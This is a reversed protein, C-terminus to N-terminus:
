VVIKNVRKAVSEDFRVKAFRRPGICDNYFDDSTSVHFKHHINEELYNVQGKTEGLILITFEFAALGLSTIDVQLSKSSGTYTAWDSEKRTVKRRTKGKVKVRRTTGFYKRGIYKKGTAINRILYVFGFYEDPPTKLIKGKYLWHSM